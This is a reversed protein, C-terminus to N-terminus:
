QKEYVTGDYTLKTGSITFNKTSGLYTITGSKSSATYTYTFSYLDSWMYVAGVTTTGATDTTFKLGVGTGVAQYKWETGALTTGTFDCSVFLGVLLVAM